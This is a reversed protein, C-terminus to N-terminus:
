FSLSFRDIGVRHAAQRFRSPVFRILGLPGATRIARGAKPAGPRWGGGGLSKPGGVNSMEVLYSVSSNPTDGLSRAPQPSSASHANIHTAPSCADRRSFRTTHADRSSSSNLTERAGLNALHRTQFYQPREMPNPDRQREWWISPIPSVTPMDNWVPSVGAGCVRPSQVKRPACCWQRVLFAPTWCFHRHGVFIGTDLDLRTQFFKVSTDDDRFPRVPMADGYVTEKSASRLRRCTSHGWKWKGIRGVM